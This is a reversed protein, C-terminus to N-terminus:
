FPYQNIFLKLCRLMISFLNLFLLVLCITSIFGNHLFIFKCLSIQPCLCMIFFKKEVTSIQYHQFNIINIYVFM